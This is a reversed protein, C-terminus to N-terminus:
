SRKQVMEIVDGGKFLIGYKAAITTGVLLATPAALGLACPCSVVLITQLNPLNPSSCVLAFKLSFPFSAQGALDVVGFSTLLMWLVFTLVAVAVM